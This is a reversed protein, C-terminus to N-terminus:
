VWIIVRGVVTLCTDSRGSGTYKPSWVRAQLIMPLYKIGHLWNGKWKSSPKKLWTSYYISEVCNRNFNSNPHTHTHTCIYPLIDTAYKVSRSCISWFNIHFWFLGQYGWCDKSLLVFCSLDCYQYWVISCPWQLWFLRTRVYPCVCLDTTYFLSGLFLGLDRHDILIQYLPCSCVISYLYGRWYITNPSSSQDMCLMFSSWCSVGYVLVFEFHIFSKFILWSVM